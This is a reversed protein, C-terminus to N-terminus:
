VLRGPRVVAAVIRSLLLLGRAYVFSCRTAGDLLGYGGAVGGAGKEFLLPSLLLSGLRAEGTRITNEAENSLDRCDEPLLLGEARREEDDQVSPGRVRSLLFLMASLVVEVIDVSVVCSVLFLNPAGVWEAPTLALRRPFRLIVFLVADGSM